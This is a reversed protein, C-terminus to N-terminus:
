PRVHGRRRRDQSCRYAATATPRSPSVSATTDSSHHFMPGQFFQHQRHPFRKAPPEWASEPRTTARSVVRRGSGSRLMNDGPRWGRGASPVDHMLARRRPRSLHNLAAEQEHGCAVPWFRGDGAERAGPAGSTPPYASCARLLGQDRGVEGDLDRNNRQRFEPHSPSRNRVPHGAAGGSASRNRWGPDASRIARHPLRM